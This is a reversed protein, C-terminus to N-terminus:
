YKFNLKALYQKIFVLTDRDTGWDYELSISSSPQNNGQAQDSGQCGAAQDGTTCGSLKYQIEASYKRIETPSKTSNITNTYYQATGILSIRNALLSPWVWSGDYANTFLFLKGQLTGGYWDYDGVKLNTVGASTVNRFEVEPRAEWYGDLFGKILQGNSLGMWIWPFMPEYALNVGSAHATGRFDTQDFPSVVLYHQSNFFTPAFIELQFDVGAKLAENGTKTVPENWTGSSSVWPAIAPTWFTSGVQTTIPNSSYYGCQSNGGFIVYSVIGNIAATQTGAFRNDTYSVSAGQATDAAGPSVLYFRNDMQDARVFLRKDCPDETPPPAPLPPAGRAAVTEIMTPPAIQANAASNGGKPPLSKAAQKWIQQCQAIKAPENQYRDRCYQAFNPDAKQSADAATVCATAAVLTVFFWAVKKKGM